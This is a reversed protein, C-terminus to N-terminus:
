SLLDAYYYNTHVPTLQLARVQLVFMKREIELQCVLDHGYRKSLPYGTNFGCPLTSLCGLGFFGLVVLLLCIMFIKM